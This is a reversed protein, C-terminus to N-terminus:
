AWKRIRRARKEVGGVTRGLQAALDRIPPRSLILEDELPLYRRGYRPPRAPDALRSSM